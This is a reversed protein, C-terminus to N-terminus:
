ILPAIWKVIVYSLVVQIFLAVLGRTTLPKDSIRDNLHDLITHVSNKKLLLVSVIIMFLSAFADIIAELMASAEDKFIRKVLIRKQSRPSVVKFERTKSADNTPKSRTVLRGDTFRKKGNKM